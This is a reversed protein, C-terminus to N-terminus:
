PHRPALKNKPKSCHQLRTTSKPISCFFHRTSNYNIYRTCVFLSQLSTKVIVVNTGQRWKRSLKVTYSLHSQRQCADQVGMEDIMIATLDAETGTRDLCMSVLLSSAQSPWLGNMCCDFRAGCRQRRRQTDNFCCLVAHVTPILLTFVACSM